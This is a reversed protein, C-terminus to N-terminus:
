IVFTRSSLIRRTSFLRVIGKSNATSTSRRDDNISHWKIHKSNYIFVNSLWHVINHQPISRDQQYPRLVMPRRPTDGMLLEQLNTRASKDTKDRFTVDYICLAIELFVCALSFMDAPFGRTKRSWSVRRMNGLLAQQDTRRQTKWNKMRAHSELTRLTYM